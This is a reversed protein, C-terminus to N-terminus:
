NEEVSKVDDALQKTFVASEHKQNQFEICLKPHRRKFRGREKTTDRATAFCNECKLIARFVDKLKPATM